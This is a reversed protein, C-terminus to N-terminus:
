VRVSASLPGNRRTYRRIAEVVAEPDASTVTINVVQAGGSGYRSEFWDLPMVVEPGAEGVLAFTPGTVFGGTAMKEAAWDYNLPHM